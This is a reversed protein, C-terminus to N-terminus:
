YIVKRGNFETILRLHVPWIKNFNPKVVNVIDNLLEKSPPLQNAANAKLNKKPANNDTPSGSLFAEPLVMRKGGRKRRLDCSVWAISFPKGNKM